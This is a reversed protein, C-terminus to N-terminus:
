YYRRKRTKKPFIKKAQKLMPDIEDRGSPYIYVVGPEHKAEGYEMGWTRGLVFHLVPFRPLELAIEDQVTGIMQICVKGKEPPKLKSVVWIERSTVYVERIKIGWCPNPAVVAVRITRRTTEQTAATHGASCGSLILLVLCPLVTVTGMAWRSSRM